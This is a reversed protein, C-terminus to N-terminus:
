NDSTFVDLYLSYTVGSGGMVWTGLLCAILHTGLPSSSEFFATGTQEGLKGSM